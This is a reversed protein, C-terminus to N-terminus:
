IDNIISLLCTCDAESSEDGAKEEEEVAPNMNRDM